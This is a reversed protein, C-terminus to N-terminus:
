DVKFCVGFDQMTITTIHRRTVNDIYYSNGDITFKDYRKIGYSTPAIIYADGVELLGEKDWQWKNKELFFIVTKDSAAAYTTIESGTMPDITKTVVSYSVTRGMDGLIVVEFDDVSIGTNSM